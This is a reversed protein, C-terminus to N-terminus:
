LVELETRNPKTSFLPRFCRSRQSLQRCWYALCQALRQPFSVQEVQPVITGSRGIVQAFDLCSRVHNSLDDYVAVVRSGSDRLQMALSNGIFPALYELASHNGSKRNNAVQGPNAAVVITNALAGSHQLKRMIDQFQTQSKGVCVYVCVDQPFIVDTPDDSNSGAAEQSAAAGCFQSVINAAMSSEISGSGSEGLLSVRSGHGIPYLADILPMDTLLQDRVKDAILFGGKSDIHTNPFVAPIIMDRKIMRTAADRATQLSEFNEHEVDPGIHGHVPTGVPSWARGLLDPGFPFRFPVVSTARVIGAETSSNKPHLTSAVGTELIAVTVSKQNIRVVIGCSGDDFHVLSNQHADTLGAVEVSMNSSTKLVVGEFEDMWLQEAESPTAEGSNSSAYHPAGDGGSRSVNAAGGKQKKENKKAGMKKELRKMMVEAKAAESSEDHGNTSSFHSM